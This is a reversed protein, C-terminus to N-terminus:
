MEEQIQQTLSFISRYIMAIQDKSLEGKQSLRELIEQERDSDIVSQQTQNKIKGIESALRLRKALLSLIEDDIQDIQLRLKAIVELM